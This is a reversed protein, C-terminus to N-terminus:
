EDILCSNSIKIVIVAKLANFVPKIEKQLLNMLDDYEGTILTSMANTEVSIGTASRIKEVFRLIEEGYKERLPYLSLEAIIIM